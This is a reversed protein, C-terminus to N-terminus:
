SMLEERSKSDLKEIAYRLSVRPMVQKREMVFDYVLEPDKNSIEKLMWGYGKRVLDHGDLLLRDAIELGQKFLRGRRISYILVVAAARRVWCSDSATWRRISDICSPHQFVYLGFAHTCLDDCSAWGSVHDNLWRYFVQYDDEDYRKIRFAFEFAITRKEWEDCKLLEDCLQLIAEKDCRRVRQYHRKCIDRVVPTPLGLNGRKERELLIDRGISETIELVDNMTMRGHSERLVTLRATLSCQKLAGVMDRPVVSM